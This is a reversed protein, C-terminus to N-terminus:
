SYNGAFCVPEGDMEAAALIQTVKQVLRRAHKNGVKEGKKTSRVYIRSKPVAWEEPVARISLPMLMQHEEARLSVANRAAIATRSLVSSPGYERERVRTTDPPTWNRRYEFLRILDISSLRCSSPMM